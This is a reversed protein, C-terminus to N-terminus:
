AYSAVRRKETEQIDRKRKHTVNKKPNNQRKQNSQRRRPHEVKMMM